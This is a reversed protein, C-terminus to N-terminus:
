GIRERAIGNSCPSRGIRFQFGPIGHIKRRDHYLFIRTVVFHSERGRSREIREKGGSREVRVGVDTEVEVAAVVDVPVAPRRANRIGKPRWRVLRTRVAVPIRPVLAYVQCPIM